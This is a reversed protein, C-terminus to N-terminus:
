KSFGKRPFIICIYGPYYMGLVVIRDDIETYGFNRGSKKDRKMRAINFLNDTAVPRTNTGRGEPLDM